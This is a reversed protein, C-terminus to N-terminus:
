PYLTQEIVDQVALAEKFSALPHPKGQMMLSLGNLQSRVSGHIRLFEISKWGSQSGLELMSFDKFRLSGQEGYLIWENVDPANGGVTGVLRVAIGQCDYEAMVAIEARSEDGGPYSVHSHKLQMGGLLRHQMFVFHTLVERVFGGQASQSLWTAAGQQWHRPWMSYQLKIDVHSLGGLEESDIIGQMKKLEPSSALSLNVAAKIPKELSQHEWEEVFAAAEHRDVALPKECLISKGAKLALRCYQIHTNPPSAIYVLDVDDRTMLAEASTECSISAYQEGKIKMLSPEFVSVVTFDAHALAGDLMFMGMTGLGIVGVRILVTANKTIRKETVDGICEM